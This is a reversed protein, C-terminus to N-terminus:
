SRLVLGILEATNKVGTKQKINQRHSEVTTKSICLKDAIEISTFGKVILALVEKERPNLPLDIDAGTISIRQKKEHRELCQKLEDIDVPKLLYDFASEKVARIGYHDFATVLIFAPFIKRKRVAEIVEFGSLGPMEVDLFVLDPKLRCIEHVAKEANSEVALIKLGTFDAILHRMRESVKVEDDV